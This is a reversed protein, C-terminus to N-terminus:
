MASVGGDLVLEAGTMFASEDSALYLVGYAIDRATGVRGLPLQSALRDVSEDRTRDKRMIDDLMPTDIFAPHVSNCRIGYKKRACHLAVSKSLHRVGAKASNYAAFNHSAVIGAVSSLNVISGGGSKAMAPIATKCGLFVSDLDVAHVRRWDELTTEEVTGVIAIGAANVLINIGGLAEVTHAVAGQWDAEVTVDGVIAVTGAGIAQATAAVGEANRDFLAVRGGEAVFLEACARGIGRAGGTVLAVKGAVRGAM